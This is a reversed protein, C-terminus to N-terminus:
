QWLSGGVREIIFKALEKSSDVGTFGLATLETCAFVVITDSSFWNLISEFKNQDMVGLTSKLNLILEELTRQLEQPHREVEIGYQKLIQQYLNQEYTIYGGLIGVKRIGARQIALATVEIISVIEIDVRNRLSEMWYCASNCPLVIFDVGYGKLKRCSEVMGELPSEENYLLARTRSPIKTQMDLIFRIHDKDHEAKTLSLIHKQFEVTAYPGMGGLIGALKNM